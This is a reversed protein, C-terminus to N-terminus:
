LCFNLHKYKKLYFSNSSKYNVPGSVLNIKENKFYISMITLWNKNFSCDADTTLIIDSNSEKVGKLIAM